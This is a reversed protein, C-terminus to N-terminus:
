KTKSSLDLIPWSLFVSIWPPLTYPSNKVVNSFLPGSHSDQICSPEEKLQQYLPFPSARGAAMTPFSHWVWTLYSCSYFRLAERLPWPLSEESGSEMVLKRKMEIRCSHLLSKSKFIWPTLLNIPTLPHDKSPRKCLIHAFSPTLTFDPSSLVMTERSTQFSEHCEHKLAQEIKLKDYASCSQYLGRLDHLPIKNKSWNQNRDGTLTQKKDSSDSLSIFILM